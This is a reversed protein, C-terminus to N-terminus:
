VAKGLRQIDIKKAGLLEIDSEAHTALIVPVECRKILAAMRKTLAEDLGKFPEDLIIMDSDFSLTRALAVRRKMGGSLESPYKEAHGELEVEKLLRLAKEEDNCVVKINELATLWPFLRDEQFMVAPREPGGEISGSDKKVLGAITHLLTTKGYGSEGMICTIGNGTELSLRDLVVHGSYSVTLDTIKM